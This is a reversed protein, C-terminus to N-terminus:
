LYSVNTQKHCTIDPVVSGIEFNRETKYDQCEKSCSLSSKIDNGNGRLSEPTAFLTRFTFYLKKSLIVTLFQFCSM